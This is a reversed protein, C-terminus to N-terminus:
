IAKDFNISDPFTNAYVANIIKNRVSYFNKQASDKNSHTNLQQDM